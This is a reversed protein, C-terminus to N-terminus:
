YNKVIIPLYYRSIPEGAYFPIEVQDAPVDTHDIIWDTVTFWAGVELTDSV